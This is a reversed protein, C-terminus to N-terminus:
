GPHQENTIDNEIQLIAEPRGEEDKRLAWRTAVVIKRGDRTTHVLRGEWREDRILTGIIKRYPQDYETQLLDHISKGLAEKRKWGYADEAGRNWFIIKANMDHVYIMDYALDLLEAQRRSQKAYQQLQQQLQKQILLARRLQQGAEGLEAAHAEVQRELEEQTEQLAEEMKKLRVYAIDGDGIIADVENRRLAEIIAESHEVRAQLEQYSPQATSTM